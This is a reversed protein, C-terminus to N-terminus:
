LGGRGPLGSQIEPRPVNTNRSCRVLGDLTVREHGNRRLADILRLDGCCRELAGFRVVRMGMWRVCPSPRASVVGPAPGCVQALAIALSSSVKKASRCNYRLIIYCITVFQLPFYYLYGTVEGDRRQALTAQESHVRCARREQATRWSLGRAPM